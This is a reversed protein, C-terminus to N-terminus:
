FSTERSVSHFIIPETTGPELTGPPVWSFGGYKPELPNRTGLRVMFLPNWHTGPELCIPGFHTGIPEPNRTPVWFVPELPNRTGLRVMFLPNWHTGPELRIPDFHTGTPEPHRGRSADVKPRKQRYRNLDQGFSQETEM